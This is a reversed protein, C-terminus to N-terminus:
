GPQVSAARPQGQKVRQKARGRDRLDRRGKWHRGETTGGFALASSGGEAQLTLSLSDKWEQGRAVEKVKQCTSPRGM